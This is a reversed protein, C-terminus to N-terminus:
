DDFISEPTKGTIYWRLFLFLIFSLSLISCMIIFGQCWIDTEDYFKMDGTLKTGYRWTSLFIALKYPGFIVIGVIAAVKVLLITRQRM